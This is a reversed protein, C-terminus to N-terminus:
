CPSSLIHGLLGGSHWQQGVLWRGNGPQAALSPGPPSADRVLALVDRKAFVNVQVVRLLRQLSWSTGSQAKLRWLLLWAILAIRLQTMVANPSQGVFAHINLNPKIAKFFLEVQWRAKYIDTITRAALDSTPCCHGSHPSQIKQGENIKRKEQRLRSHARGFRRTGRHSPLSERWLALAVVVGIESGGMEIQWARTSLSATEAM